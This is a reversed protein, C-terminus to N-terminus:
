NNIQNIVVTNFNIKILFIFLKYFKYLHIVHMLNRLLYPNLFVIKLNYIVM